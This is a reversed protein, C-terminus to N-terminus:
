RMELRRGVVVFRGEKTHYSCTSLIIFEDGYAATVGTTYLSHAMVNEYWNNFEEEDRALFFNYFKFGDYDAEYVESYFVAMLEYEREEYLTDFCIRAHERGYDEKQYLDLEGFMAGTNMNHGHILVNGEAARGAMSSNDLILCGNKNEKGYFDRHLYYEEDWLTQLVPYDIRTDEIYLWGALDPNEEKLVRYQPLIESAAGAAPAAGSSVPQVKNEEPEEEMLIVQKKERLERNQVELLWLDRLEGCLRICFMFLAMFFIGVLLLLVAANKKKESKM